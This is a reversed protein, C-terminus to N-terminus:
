LTRTLADFILETSLLLSRALASLRELTTKMVTPVGGRRSPLASVEAM